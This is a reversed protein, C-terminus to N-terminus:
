LEMLSEEQIQFMEKRPLHYFDHVSEVHDLFAPEDLIGTDHDKKRCISCSYRDSFAFTEWQLSRARSRRAEVLTRAHDELQDYLGNVRCHREAETLSGKSIYGALIKLGSVRIKNLNKSDLASKVELHQDNSQAKRFPWCARNSSSSKNPLGGLQLLCRLSSTDSYLHEVEDIILGTLDINRASTRAMRQAPKQLNLRVDVHEYRSPDAMTVRCVNVLPVPITDENM